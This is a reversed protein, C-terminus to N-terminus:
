PFKVIFIAQVTLVLTPRNWFVFYFFPNHRSQFNIHTHRVGHLVLKCSTKPMWSNYIHYGVQYSNLESLTASYLPYQPTPIMVGARGTGENTGTQVLKLISQLVFSLFKTTFMANLIMVIILRKCRLAIIYFSFHNGLLTVLSLTICILILTISFLINDMMTRAKFLHLIFQVHIYLIWSKM